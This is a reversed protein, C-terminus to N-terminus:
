RDFLEGRNLRFALVKERRVDRCNQAREGGPDVCGNRLKARDIDRCQAVKAAYPPGLERRGDDTAEHMTCFVRHTVYPLKRDGSPDNSGAYTFRSELM